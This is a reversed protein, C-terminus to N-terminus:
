EEGAAARVQPPARAAHVDAHQVLARHVRCAALHRRGGSGATTAEAGVIWALAHERGRHPAAVTDVSTTPPGNDCNCSAAADAPLLVLALVGAMLVMAIRSLPRDHSCRPALM